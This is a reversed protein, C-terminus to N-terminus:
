HAAAGVRELDHDVVVAPRQWLVALHKKWHSWPGDPSTTYVSIAQSLHGPEAPTPKRREGLKVKTSIDYANSRLRREGPRRRLVSRRGPLICSLHPDWRM